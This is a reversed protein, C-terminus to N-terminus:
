KIQSELVVSAQKLAEDAKTIDKGGAQAMNPRGGGSGSAIKSIEKIINGSHVGMAIVDNTATVVFNVKDEVVSALAVVGTSLKDKLADALTRLADMDSGDVRQAVLNVGKIQVKANLMEDVSSMSMKSKLSSIEKNLDKVEDVVSKVRVLLNDERTKLMECISGLLVDKDNIYNYVNSGTIAEIRRVGAAVGGESVIKFIGIQATNSLHTGGCLEMSYEGMEVVRVVNGYKEGFLATAGKQKAMEISCESATITLSKFIQKNVLAEIKSLENKSIGEFHTFDFRLREANVLSGAQQVHDGLVERLAKHLLHTASHNRGVSMRIEEDVECTIKKGIEISGSLVKVEHLIRDNIGKKTNLVQAKFGDGLILGKDGVQGGGEAYFPTKDLIIVVEEDQTAEKSVENNKVIALVTGVESLKEYGVFSSVIDKSLDSYVDEKWGDTDSNQRANRARDRQQNMQVEFEENDVTMEEEELIEKTLDIPFGYTDYLKFANEGSLVVSGKSKLEEIYTKLIEMGQDITEEFREEEVKIVKKLYDEKERLQPYADASVAIVRDLLKFLFAGKIGLLKGHRAARRLLRRLVYGRGENSPLVGDTVLFSVARIHDTIIRVSTDSKPNKGYEIKALELVGDLIYKITDIEFITDVDQMLCAVRELGMGTDINPKPLDSYNGAEDRDYQTFVHNWFEIYRDCDCGPKCDPSSCGYKEGRDYYIESCPGCPGTGIEWFNDDKGLRVIREKPFKMENNWIEYADDDKEYITVWIKDQPIALHETAFEWGWRISERKFYDGFSFNGLMEFFTAHRATRGVNEIDGTRICKQCTTMRPSPPVEKGMFFNKLPAMGSNILLLSADNEPILSYSEKVYHGKSEFFNIFKSRIENLGLKQM